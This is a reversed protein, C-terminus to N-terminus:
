KHCFPLDPKYQCAIDCYQQDGLPCDGGGPNGPLPSQGGDDPPNSPTSSADVVHIALSSVSSGAADKVAVTTDGKALAKFTGDAAISGVSTNAVSYTYNGAGKVGSFKLSDGVNLTGTAPSIFLKKNLLADVAANADVRCNCATQIQVQAGTVQLLSRVQAGTLSSDQALLFAVLGSVLPTAMSTGSLNEYKNGPLTSMIDLGPAALSVTRTGYNSWYPKEDKSGSAAVVISNPTGANAPFVDTVDNNKGDNAAAVVFIIGADDARQVAEILPGAQARPISAGWSASIVRVKQQIAYDVAKIGNNLDGSGNEDLFRIPMISVDPSIGITGGNILGTAGIIGSCHTGHGPNEGTKDTTDATNSIFDFGTIMNPALSEHKSDAGTDIVAVVIKKSGRNGARQWAAEANVKKIAWQDKLTVADLPARFTHLRVNPVVYEVNPNSVLATLAEAEHGPAVKVKLLKAFPNQDAVFLHQTTSISAASYFQQAGKYKVLYEGPIQDAGAFARTSVLVIAAVKVLTAIKSVRGIM